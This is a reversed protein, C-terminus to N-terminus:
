EVEDLMAQYRDAIEEPSDSTGTVTVEELLSVLVEGVANTNTSPPVQTDLERFVKMLEPTFFPQKEPITEELVPISQVVGSELEIYREAAIEPESLYRLVLAADEPNPTGATLSFGRPFGIHSGGDEENVPVPATAWDEGYVFDKVMFGPGNNLGEDIFPMEGAVFAGKAEDQQGIMFEPDVIKEEYMTQLWDIMAVGQESTLDPVSGEFPAGFGQLWLFMRDHSTGGTGFYAPLNPIEAQVGRAAELLDQYTDYPPPEVGAQELLRINYYLANVLSKNPFHYIEDDYTGDRWVNEPITAYLEPDEEEWTAVLETMPDLLDAGMFVPTLHSDIEVLDPLEEGADRMRLMDTLIADGRIDWEVQIGHEEELPAFDDTPVTEGNFWVTVVNTDATEGSGEDDGGGCAALPLMLAASAMTVSLKTRRRFSWVGGGSRNSSTNHM